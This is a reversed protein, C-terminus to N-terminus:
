LLAKGSGWLAGILLIVVPLSSMAFGIERKAPDAVYGALYVVRGAVFVLGLWGAWTPNVYTGFLWMAPVFAVLQEMTNQHVRFYREFVPHGGIAPAAVKYKGRAWGVLMGFVAFELLALAIVFAVFEM